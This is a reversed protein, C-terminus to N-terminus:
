GAQCLTAPVPGVVPRDTRDSFDKWWQKHGHAIDAKDGEYAQGVRIVAIADQVVRICQAACRLVWGHLPHAHQHQSQAQRVHNQASPCQM